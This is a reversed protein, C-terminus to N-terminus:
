INDKWLQQRNEPLPIYAIDGNILFFTLAADRISKPLSKYLTSFYSSLENSSVERWIVEDDSKIIYTLNLCFGPYTLLAATSQGAGGM